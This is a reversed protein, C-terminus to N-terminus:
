VRATSTQAGPRIKRGEDIIRAKLLLQITRRVTNASVRYERILEHTGPLQTGPPYKGAAVDQQIAVAVREFPARPDRLARELAAEPKPRAPMRQRLAESARQDAESVFATYVRLTTTGGGSHGLRGAVTRIDVGSSILETASYHRLAHLHTHIGLRAATKTYRQSVSDPLRYTSSDPVRSFVYADPSLKVGIGDARAEAVARLERLIAVTEADLTLRRQQHTKTSKVWTKGALQAISCDIVVTGVDLDLKKWCLACLEGRRAGTTMALWVLAGWTLDRFSETVIRAAEAATPPNPNPHPAAPPEGTKIPNTAVWKWRVARKFAGSLIFHIQRVSSASLPKCVHPRCTADCDHPRTTRHEIFPKRDCHLRCRLLEAYFSDLVDADVAGVKTDGILPLIHNKVHGRYGRATTEELRALELHRTVLEGVTASTRSQRREDVQVQLRRMVKDAEDRIKPTAAPITEKLYHRRKTVPDIGAYVSVRLAGSPLTQISGKRRRKAASDSAGM